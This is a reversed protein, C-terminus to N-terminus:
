SRRGRRQRHMRLALGIMGVSAWAVISTPEPTTTVTRDFSVGVLMGPPLELVNEGVYIPTPDQPRDPSQFVIDASFPIGPVSASFNSPTQTYFNALVMGGPGFVQLGFTTEVSVHTGNGTVNILQPSNSFLHFPAGAVGLAAFESPLTGAFFANLSSAGGPISNGNADLDLSWQIGGSANLTAPINLLNVQQVATAPTYFSIIEAAAPSCCILTALFTAVAFRIGSKIRLM